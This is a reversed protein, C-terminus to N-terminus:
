ASEQSRDIILTAIPREVVGQAVGNEDRIFEKGEDFDVRLPLDVLVTAPRESLLAARIESCKMELVVPYTGKVSRVTVEPQREMQDTIEILVQWKINGEATLVEDPVDLGVLMKQIAPERAGNIRARVSVQVPLTKM